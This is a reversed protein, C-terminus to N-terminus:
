TTETTDNKCGDTLRPNANIAKAVFFCTDYPVMTQKQEKQFFQQM